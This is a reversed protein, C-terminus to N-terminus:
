RVAQATMFWRRWSPTQQTWRGQRERRGFFRNAHSGGPIPSRDLCSMGTINEGIQSSVTRRRPRSSQRIWSDGGGLPRCSRCRQEARGAREQSDGYRCTSSSSSCLVNSAAEQLVRPARVLTSLKRQSTSDMGHSTAKHCVSSPGSIRPSEEASSDCQRHNQQLDEEKRRSSQSSQAPRACRSTNRERCISRAASTGNGSKSTCTSSASPAGHQPESSSCAHDISYTRSCSITPISSITFTEAPCQAGQEQRQRQAKATTQCIYKKVAPTATSNGLAAISRGLSDVALFSRAAATSPGDSRGMSWWMVPLLRGDQWEHNQLSWVELRSKEAPCDNTGGLSSIQEEKAGNHSEQLCFPNQKTTSSRSFPTCQTSFSDLAPTWSTTGLTWAQNAVVFIQSESSIKAGQTEFNTTFNNCICVLFAWIYMHQSDSTLGTLFLSIRLM